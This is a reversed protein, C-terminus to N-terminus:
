WNSLAALTNRKQCFLINTRLQQLGTHICELSSRRTKEIVSQHQVDHFHAKIMGVMYTQMYKAPSSAAIDKEEKQM